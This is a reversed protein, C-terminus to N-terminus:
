AGDQVYKIGHKLSLEAKALEKGLYAAHSLESVWGNAIIMAYLARANAGEIVRLLTNDYGYHEVNIIGKDALPLVVFYGAKDLVVTETPENAIIQPMTAVLLAAPEEACDSCGCPLLEKPSLAAVRAAIEAVDVCGTMDIVDVQERFAQIEAASVNRLVPRKGPSGIVRGSADIGNQVLALLTRGSLHGAPDDGAVVLYQIAKNTVINKVVKDIGINETETKGVIALGKPKRDALEEALAISGLTTIAVPATRDIVLYEGVVSPWSGPTVQFDCARPAQSVSPFAAAFANQAVAAYCYACGLCDYKVPQMQKSWETVSAALADTEAPDITPLLAALQDLAERMCGCKQCKPLAIGAEVEKRVSQLTDSM